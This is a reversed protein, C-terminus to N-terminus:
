SAYPPTYSTPARNPPAASLTGAQAPANTKKSHAKRTKRKGLGPLELSERAGPLVLASGRFPSAGVRIPGTQFPVQPAVGSAGRHIGFPRLDKCRLSPTHVCGTYRYVPPARFRVRARKLVPARYVAPLRGQGTLFATDTREELTRAGGEADNGAGAKRM